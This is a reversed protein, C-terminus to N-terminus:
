ALLNEGLKVGSQDDIVVVEDTGRSLHNATVFNGGGKGRWRIAARSKREDRTECVSTGTISIQQSDEVYIGYPHGDLVQCGSINVRRCRVIELLGERHLPEADAVTHRGTQCDHIISGTLTCDHSDALRVGTCLEREGYDPNHDFSNPGIVINRSGDLQLNRQHGSYLVNDAVVVGRCAVLHVNIAQSGILNGSIAFMGAKHNDKANRGVIRVNAGGPSYKAQITNGCITGERVSAGDATSDIWIDASEDAATDYNYEIDNGTIQLNRIESGVIRIGGRLCYSIHSGTIITQHLNVHDLLVGSGRNHYIHCHSILVNRARSRVHIGHELDRLLLGEFTPQMIGELLLGSARPHRGEIELNLVTPMRQRQWVRPEYGKPDASKDHTGLLHFAPGAGTMILKAAGASGSMGFRGTEDLEVRITRSILYEGPPFQLVGDGQELAHVIADTDDHQGDGAAGFDRVNSM